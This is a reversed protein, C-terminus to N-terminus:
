RMSALKRVTGVAASPAGKMAEDLVGPERRAEQLLRGLHADLAFRWRQFFNELEHRNFRSLPDNLGSQAVAWEVLRPGSDFRYLALVNQLRRRLPLFPDTAADPLATMIHEPKRKTIQGLWGGDSQAHLDALSPGGEPMSETDLHELEAMSALVTKEGVNPFRIWIRRDPRGERTIVEIKIISGVGWELRKCHRVKQGIKYSTTQMNNLSYIRQLGRAALSSGCRVFVGFRWRSALTYRM